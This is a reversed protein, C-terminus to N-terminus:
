APRSVAVGQGPEAHILAPTYRWALCAVAGLPIPPLYTVARYLLVAATVQATARHGAGAALVGILGLETIGLGGPTLPLVTLLRVFAFAALSTQWPVLAQSLGIGRLCALLVLWLTLNAAATAVTIRWGRAAILAGAQNRFGTLSGPVDFSAPRRVVRCALVLAAQLARGARFAFSESRVLLSLAAVAAALLALGVAAAAILGAGPRIATALVLLALVPLGLRAFVNWIGSVLTYLVYEATSVGWSSLMAWSVGMALAGGAPLTNAVANSGVNVVAAERLRISPLVACIMIWTTAMSAVAAVAVLLVQTWPMAQMSAWVSRYSAFHPLAFGFIAVVLVASGTSRFITRLQRRRSRGPGAMAAAPPEAVAAMLGAIAPAVVSPAATTQEM